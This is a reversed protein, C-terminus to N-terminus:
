RLAAWKRFGKCVKNVAVVDGLCRVADCRCKQIQFGDYWQFFFFQYPKALLPIGPPVFRHILQVGVPKEPKGLPIDAVLGIRLVYQHSGKHFSEFVDVRERVPVGPAQFSPQSLNDHVLGEHPKASFVIEVKGLVDVILNM